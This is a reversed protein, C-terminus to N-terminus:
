AFLLVFYFAFFCFVFYFYRTGFFRYVVMLSFYSVFFWAGPFFWDGYVLWYLCSAFSFVVLYPILRTLARLRSSTIEMGYGSIFFFVSVFFYGFMSNFHEFLHCFFVGFAMLVRAADFVVLNCYNKQFM